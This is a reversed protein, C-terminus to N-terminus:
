GDGADDFTLFTAIDGAADRASAEGRVYARLRSHEGAPYAPDMEDRPVFLARISADDEAVRMAVTRERYQWAPDGPNFRTEGDANLRDALEGAAEHRPLDPAAESLHEDVRAAWQDLTM